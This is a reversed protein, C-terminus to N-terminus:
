RVHISTNKVTTTCEHMSLQKLRTGSKQSGMSQLGGPEETWSIRWALISSDTTTEKELPDKLGLSLVWTERTDGENAPPNKVM